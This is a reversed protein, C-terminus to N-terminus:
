LSAGAVAGAGSLRALHHRTFYELDEPIGLGYMGAREGGINHFELRLGRKLLENYAPAVYFEGNVRQDRAIMSDAAAVFDRGHRFNYIGVTAEDSVVRKEVVEVIRRREDLRVFSWKPDRATMTMILGDCADLEMRALYNNIDVDVYQDCNAIMLPAERDIWARALLVTCAAGMTVRQVPLVVCGPAARELHERLPYHDLHAQQCVFIFRHPQRPRLNEVVLEIMTRAGIPILPKPMPYGAQAFRSGHGAMPLVINLM